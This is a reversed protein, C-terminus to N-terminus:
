RFFVTFCTLLEDCLGSVSVYMQHTKLAAIWQDREEASVASFYHPKAEDDDVLFCFPHKANNKKDWAMIRADKTIKVSGLM